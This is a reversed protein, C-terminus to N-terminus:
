FAPRRSRSFGDFHPVKFRVRVASSLRLSSIKGFIVLPDASNLIIKSKPWWFPAGIEGSEHVLFFGDRQQWRMRRGAHHPGEFRGFRLCLHVFIEALGRKVIM